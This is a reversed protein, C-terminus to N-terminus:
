HKKQKKSTAYIFEFDFLYRQNQRSFNKKKVDMQMSGKWVVSRIPSAYTYFRKIFARFSKSLFVPLGVDKLIIPKMELGAVM